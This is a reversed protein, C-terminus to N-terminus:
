HRSREAARALRSAVVDLYDVLEPPDLVEFEFGKTVVYIALKDLSNSGTHLVCTDDDTPELRGSTPSSREAVVDLPAHM